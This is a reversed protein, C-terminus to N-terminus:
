LGHENLFWSERSGGASNWCPSPSFDWGCALRRHLVLQRHSFFTLSLVKKSPLSYQHYSAEESVGITTCCSIPDDVLIYCTLRLLSIIEIHKIRAYSYNYNKEYQEHGWFSTFLSNMTQTALMFLTSEHSPFAFELCEKWSRHPLILM